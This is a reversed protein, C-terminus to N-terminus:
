MYTYRGREQRLKFALAALLMCLEELRDRSLEGPDTSFIITRDKSDGGKRTDGQHYYEFHLINGRVGFGM